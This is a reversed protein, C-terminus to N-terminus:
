FFDGVKLMARWDAGLPPRSKWCLLKERAPLRGKWLSSYAPLLKKFAHRPRSYCSAYGERVFHSSSPWCPLHHLPVDCSSTDRGYDLLLSLVGFHKSESTGVKISGIYIESSNYSHFCFVDHWGRPSNLACWRTTRWLKRRCSVYLRFLNQIAVTFTTTQQCTATSFAEIKRLKIQQSPIRGKWYNLNYLTDTVFELKELDYSSM